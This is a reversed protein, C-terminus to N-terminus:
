DVITLWNALGVLAFLSQVKPPPRRLVLERGKAGAEEKARILASVGASDVFRLESLDLLLRDPGEDWIQTIRQELAPSTAIDLEGSLALVVGDSDDRREIVLEEPFEGDSSQSATM